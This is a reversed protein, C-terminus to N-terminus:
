ERRTQGLFDRVTQLFQGPADVHVWHGATAITVISAGPFSSEILALDDEQIYKSQGGRIFCTPKDFKAGMRIAQTLQEYNRVIAGLPIKWRFGRSPDRTINKLLFRRTMEDRV